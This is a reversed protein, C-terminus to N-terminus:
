SSSPPLNWSRRSSYLLPQNVPQSVGSRTRGRRARRGDVVPWVASLSSGNLRPARTGTASRPSSGARLVVVGGDVIMSASGRGCDAVADLDEDVRVAAEVHRRRDPQGVPQRRVADAPELLRHRGLVPVRQACNRSRDSTGTQTPSRSYVRQCNRGTRSCFSASYMMGSMMRVPPMESIFFIAM